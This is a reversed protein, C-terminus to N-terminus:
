YAAPVTSCPDPSYWSGAPNQFIDGDTGRNGTIGTCASGQCPVKLNEMEVGNSTTINWISGTEGWGGDSDPSTQVLLWGTPVATYVSSLQLDSESCLSPQSVSVLIDGREKAEVTSTPTDCATGTGTTTPTQTTDPGKSSASGSSTAVPLTATVVQRRHILHVPEYIARIPETAIICPVVVLCADGPSFSCLIHM